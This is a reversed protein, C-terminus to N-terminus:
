RPQGVSGRTARLRARRPKATEAGGEVVGSWVARVIRELWDRSPRRGSIYQSYMAGIMMHVVTDLDADNRVEGRELGRELVARLM